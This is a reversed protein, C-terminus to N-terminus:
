FIYHAYYELLIHYNKFYLQVYKILYNSKLAVTVIFISHVIGSAPFDARFSSCISLAPLSM